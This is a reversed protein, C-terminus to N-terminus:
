FPRVKVLIVIALVTLSIVPFLVEPIPKIEGERFKRAKIRAIVHLVIIGVVLLLKAHFWGNGKGTFPSPTSRLAFYLGGLLAIFAGVDMAIGLKKELDIFASHAAPEAKQHAFLLQYMGMLTGIWMVFGFIHIVMVWQGTKVKMAGLAANMVFDM